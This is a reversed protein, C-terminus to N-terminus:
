KRHLPAREIEDQIIKNVMVDTYPIMYRNHVSNVM